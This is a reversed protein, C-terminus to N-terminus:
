VAQPAMAQEAQGLAALEQEKLLRDVDLLVALHEGTNVMGSVFRTDVRAGFDPCPRVDAASINLVDSVADVVMGTIRDGVTAIIIVSFKTYEVAELGFKARLDLVPIVTGRLNMVGRIHPPMNPIPTIASFGRIEQVRLIDLGYEEAGLTFTLYQRHDTALAVAAQEM